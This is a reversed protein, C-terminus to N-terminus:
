LLKHKSINYTMKDEKMPIFALVTLSNPDVQTLGADCIFKIQEGHNTIIYKMEDTTAKLTIKASGQSNWKCYEDYMLGYIENKPDRHREYYNTIITETAQQVVHGVQSAIKGKGMKLDSNVLIYMKYHDM